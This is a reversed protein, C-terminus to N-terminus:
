SAVGACTFTKSTMTSRYAGYVLPPTFSCVNESAAVRATGDFVDRDTAPERQNGCQGVFARVLVLHYATATLEM